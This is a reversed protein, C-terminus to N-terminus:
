FVTDYDAAFIIGFAAADLPTETGFFCKSCLIRYHIVVINQKREELSSLLEKEGKCM